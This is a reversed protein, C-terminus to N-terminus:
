AGQLLKILERVERLLQKRNILEATNDQFVLIEGSDTIEIQTMNKDTYFFHQRGDDTNYIAIFPIKACSLKCRKLAMLDSTPTFHVTWGDLQKDSIEIVCESINKALFFRKAKECLAKSDEISAVQIM